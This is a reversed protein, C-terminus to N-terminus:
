ATHSLAQLVQDGSLGSPMAFFDASQKLAPALQDHYDARSIEQTGFRALHDTLFQTDLLSYGGFRLRCVLYALAVKSADTVHSFMSEGFFAAGLSVGYLGGVLQDDQWCEVSHVHGQHHLATYLSIIGDNIWTNDRGPKPAACAAIVNAFATNVRVQFPERRLTRKLRRPIHLGNLPLIGRRDPDILYIRPDHRDDAMPFVGRAYCSLLEDPGFPRM